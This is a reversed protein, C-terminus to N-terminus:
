QCYHYSYRCPLISQLLAVQSILSLKRFKQSQNEEENKQITANSANM